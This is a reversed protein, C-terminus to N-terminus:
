VIKGLVGYILADLEAQYDKGNRRNIWITELLGRMADADVGDTNYDKGRRELEAILDDDDLEDLVDDVDVHVNVYM